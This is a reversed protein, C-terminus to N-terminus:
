SLALSQLSSVAGAPIDALKVMVPKLPAAQRLVHGIAEDVPIMPFPSARERQRGQEISGECVDVRQAM